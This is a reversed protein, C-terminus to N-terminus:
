IVTSVSFLWLRSGCRGVRWLTPKHTEVRMRRATEVAAAEGAGGGDRGHVEAQALVVLMRPVLRDLGQPHDRVHLGEPLGHEVGLELVEVIQVPLVERLDALLAHLLHLVALGLLRLPAAVAVAV